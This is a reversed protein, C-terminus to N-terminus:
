AGSRAAIREIVIVERRGGLALVLGLIVFIGGVILGFLGAAAAFIGAGLGAGLIAAGADAGSAAADATVESFARASLATGTLPMALFVVGSLLFGRGFARRVTPAWLCIVAVTLFVTLGIVMGLRNDAQGGLAAGLPSYGVFALIGFILGALMKGIIRM